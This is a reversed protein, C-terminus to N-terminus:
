ADRMARGISKRVIASFRARPSYRNPTLPSAAAAASAAARTGSPASADTATAAAAITALSSSSRRSSAAERSSASEREECQTAIAAADELLTCGATGCNYESGAPSAESSCFSRAYAQAACDAADGHEWDSDEWGDEASSEGAVFEAWDEWEEDM